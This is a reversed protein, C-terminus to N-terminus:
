TSRTSRSHNEQADHSSQNRETEGEANASSYYRVDSSMCQMNTYKSHRIPWRVYSQTCQAYLSYWSSTTQKHDDNTLVVPAHRRTVASSLHADFSRSDVSFSSVCFTTKRIARLTLFQSGSTSKRGSETIIKIMMIKCQADTRQDDHRFQTWPIWM